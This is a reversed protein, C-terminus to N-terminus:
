TAVPSLSGWRRTALRYEFLHALIEVQHFKDQAAPDFFAVPRARTRQRHESMLHPKRETFAKRQDRGLLQMQFRDDMLQQPKQGAIRIDPIKLLMAHTNPIFPGILPSFQTRHVALLPS